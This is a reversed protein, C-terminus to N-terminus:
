GTGSIALGPGLTGPQNRSAQAAPRGPHGSEPRRLGAPWLGSGGTTVSKGEREYLTAANGHKAAGGARTRGGLAVPEARPAPGRQGEVLARGAGSGAREDRPRIRGRGRPAAGRGARGARRARGAGPRPLPERGARHEALAVADDTEEAAAPHALDVARVVQLELLRDGELEQGARELAVGLAQLAEVALDTHRALDRVRGDAAHPVDALGLSLVEQRHLEHVPLVQRREEAADPAERLVLREVDRPLHRRPEGRRVLLANEVPVELGRVHHEVALALDPEGVEAQGAERFREGAVVHAGPRGGVHRGLLQLPALDGGAAVDVREAQQDVLEDRPAAGELALPERLERALVAVLPRDLRRRDDGVEVGRDLPRDEGAELLVRLAARGRGEDHGRHEGAAVGELRRDRRPLGRRRLEHRRGALGFAQARADRPGAEGGDDGRHEGDREELPREM